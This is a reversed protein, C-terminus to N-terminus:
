LSTRSFTIFPFCEPIHSDWVGHSSWTWGGSDSAPPAEKYPNFRSFDIRWTDGDEPPLARQDAKALWKMGHWPFALEVTWGRDRDSNDNLTGDVFVGSKLGPFHFDWSGLRMGRPHSNFGVGNFERVLPNSRRFSPHADFGGSEYAEEWIFFAEYRTGLANIEFEYYADRGAIFVESNNENYLPANRETLSGQVFPEEHWFAVYLNKDDWLVAARTDHITQGGTILDVFKPSRDTQQWVKEDLRGDIEPAASIHRATYRKISDRPCPFPWDGAVNSTDAVPFVLARPPHEPDEKSLSGEPSLSIGMLLLLLLPFLQFYNM